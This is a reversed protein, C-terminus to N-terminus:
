KTRPVRVILGGLRRDESYPIHLMRATRGDLRITWVKAPLTAGGSPIDIDRTSLVDTGLAEVLRAMADRGAAVDPDEYVMSCRLAAEDSQAMTDPLMVSFTGSADYTVGDPARRTLGHKDLRGHAKAYSPATALCVDQFAAVVKGVPVPVREEAAHAPLATALALALALAM